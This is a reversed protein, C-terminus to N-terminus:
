YRLIQLIKYREKDVKMEEQMEKIYWYNYLIVFKLFNLNIYVIYYIYKKIKNLMM